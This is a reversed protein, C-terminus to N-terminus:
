NEPFCVKRWLYIAYIHWHDRFINHSLKWKSQLWIMGDLLVKKLNKIMSSVENETVPSLYMSHVFCGRLYYSPDHTAIPINQTLNIGINTFFYNLM